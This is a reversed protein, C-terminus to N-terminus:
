EPLLTLAGQGDPQGLVGDFAALIDAHKRPLWGVQRGDVLLRMHAAPDFPSRAAVGATVVSVTDAPRSASEAM